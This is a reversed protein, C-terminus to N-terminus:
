PNRPWSVLRPTGPNGIKNVEMEQITEVPLSLADLQPRVKADGVVLWLLKKPDIVARAARDLDAAKIARYRDALTEYYDDPRNSLANRQMGGLVDASTEFSGPLARISRNVNREREAPTVGLSTLFEGAGALIAAISPGTKDAQVPAYIIFPVTEAVRNIQSHVGYAWGKTERLDM